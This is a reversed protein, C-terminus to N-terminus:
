HCGGCCFALKPWAGGAGDDCGNCGLTFPGAAGIGCCGILGFGTFAPTYAM